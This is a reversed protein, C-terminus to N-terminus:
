SDAVTIIVVTRTLTLMEGSSSLIDEAAKCWNQHSIEAESDNVAWKLAETKKRPPLFITEFPIKNVAQKLLYM